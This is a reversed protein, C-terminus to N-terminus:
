WRRLRSARGSGRSPIKERRLRFRAARTRHRRVSRWRSATSSFVNTFIFSSYNRWLAAARDQAHKDPLTHLQQGRHTHTQTNVNKMGKQDIRHTRTTTTHKYAHKSTPRPKTVELFSLSLFFAPPRAYM